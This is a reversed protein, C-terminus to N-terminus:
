RKGGLEKGRSKKEKKVSAFAPAVGSTPQLDVEGEGWSYSAKTSDNRPTFRLSQQWVFPVDWDLEHLPLWQSNSFDGRLATVLAPGVKQSPLNPQTQSHKADDEQRKEEVKRVRESRM